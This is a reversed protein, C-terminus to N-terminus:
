ARNETHCPQICHISSLKQPGYYLRKGRPLHSIRQERANFRFSAFHIQRLKQKDDKQLLVTGVGIGSADSEIYFPKTYDPLQM